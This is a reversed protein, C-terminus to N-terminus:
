QAVPKFDDPLKCATVKDKEITAADVANYINGGLIRVHSDDKDGLYIGAIGTWSNSTGRQAVMVCGVLWEGVLENSDQGWNEWSRSRPTSSHKYGAQSVAWGLFQSNWAVSDDAAAFNMSANYAAIRPSTGVAGERVGIEGAVVKLIKEDGAVSADSIAKQLEEPTLPDPNIATQSIPSASERLQTKTTASFSVQSYREIVSIAWDRAGKDAETISGAGDLRPDKQLIQLAQQAIISDVGRDFTYYKYMAPSLAVAIPVAVAALPKWSAEFFALWGPGSSGEQTIPKAPSPGSSPEAAKIGRPM